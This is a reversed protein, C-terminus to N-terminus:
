QSLIELRRTRWKRGAHLCDRRRTRCRVIKEAGYWEHMQWRPGFYIGPHCETKICCSFVSATYVGPTYETHSLLNQQSYFTRWGYIYIDEKEVVGLGDAVAEELSPEPIWQRPDLITCSLNADSLNTHRLDTRSLDAGSLNTGRLDAKRLTSCFLNAKCLNAKSFNVRSLEAGFLNIGNLNAGSLNAAHLDAGALYVGSLNANHLDVGSFDRVGAGYKKVLESPTM